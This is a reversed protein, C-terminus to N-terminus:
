FFPCEIIIQSLQLAPPYYAVYVAQGSEDHSFGHVLSNRVSFSLEIALDLHGGAGL